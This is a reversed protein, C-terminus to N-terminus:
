MYAVAQFEAGTHLVALGSNEIARKVGPCMRWGYDDFVMAGGRSMRPRFFEIFAMTSAYTDADCHAFCFRRESAPAATDPFLGEVVTVGATRLRTKTGPLSAWEGNRHGDDAASNPIGDFTDFAWVARGPFWEKLLLCVGGCYM